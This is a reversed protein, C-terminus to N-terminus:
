RSLTSTIKKSDTIENEKLIMAGKRLLLKYRHLKPPCDTIKARFMSIIVYDQGKFNKRYEFSCSRGYYVTDAYVINNSANLVQLIGMPLECEDYVVHAGDRELYYSPTITSICIRYSESRSKFCFSYYQGENGEGVAVPQEQGHLTVFSLAIPLLLVICKGM